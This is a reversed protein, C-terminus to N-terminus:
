GRRFSQFAALARRRGEAPDIVPPPYPDRPSLRWSRPVADFFALATAPPISQGEALWRRRYAGSADHKAAQADPSFVRFFPAADPGTGAVWQWNLANAGADWDTLQDAFWRMGIRWDILLTKVLVSATLMRMRNHMRGTVWMERLGADVLPMGTRAQRWALLAPSDEAMDWPFRDWAPNVPRDPLAPNHHLVHQSFERWALERLFAEAGPSGRERAALAAHWGARPSIEGYALNEALKSSGDAALDDRAAAYADLGRVLFADLRARARAEGPNQHAAVVPGGRDMAADLRWDELRETAPWADPAPLRAPAPLPEGMDRVALAKRFPAFVRFPTGQGTAMAEPAALTFGTFARVSLGAAELGSEQARALPDPLRTLWVESAGTERALAALAQAAPGSRLTLRSGLPALAPAFAALAMGWRMRPAAGLVAVAEDNLAVPIVPRGAQAAESLAPNDALRLDRRLWLLIPTRDPM